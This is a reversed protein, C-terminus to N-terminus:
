QIVGAWAYCRGIGDPGVIIEECPAPCTQSCSEDWCFASWCWIDFIGWGIAGGTDACKFLYDGLRVFHGLLSPHCAVAGPYVREGNAMFGDYIGTSDGRAFYHSVQALFREGVVGKPPLATDGLRGEYDSNGEPPAELAPIYCRPYLLHHEAIATQETPYPVTPPAVLSAEGVEEVVLGAGAVRVRLGSAGLRALRAVSADLPEPRADLNGKAPSDWVTCLSGLTPWEEAWMGQLDLQRECGDSGGQQADLRGETDWVEQLDEAQYQERNCLSPLGLDGGDNGGQEGQGSLGLAAAGLLIGTVALV